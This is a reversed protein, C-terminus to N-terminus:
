NPFFLFTRQIIIISIIIIIVIIVIIILPVILIILIPVLYLNILSNIHTIPDQVFSQLYSHPQYLIEQFVQDQHILEIVLPDDQLIFIDVLILFFILIPISAIIIFHARFSFYQHYLQLM